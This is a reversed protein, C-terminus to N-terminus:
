LSVPIATRVSIYELGKFTLQQAKSILLRSLNSILM